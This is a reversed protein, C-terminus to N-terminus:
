NCSTPVPSEAFSFFEWPRPVLKSVGESLPIHDVAGYKWSPLAGVRTSTSRDPVTCSM